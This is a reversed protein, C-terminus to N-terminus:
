DFMGQGDRRRREEDERAKRRANLAAIVALVAVAVFLWVLLPDRVLLLVIQWATSDSNMPHIPTHTHTCQSRLIHTSSHQLRQMDSSRM